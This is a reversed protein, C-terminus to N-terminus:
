INFAGPALYKILMVLVVVAIVAIIIKRISDDMPVFSLGVGIVILILLMAIM